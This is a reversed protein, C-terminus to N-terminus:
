DRRRKKEVRSIQSFSKRYDTPQGDRQGSAIANHTNGSMNSGYAMNGAGTSYPIMRFGPRGSAPSRDGMKSGLIRSGWDKGGIVGSFAGPKGGLVGEGIAM